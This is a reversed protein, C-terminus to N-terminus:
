IRESDVLEKGKSIIARGLWFSEGSRDKRSVSNKM